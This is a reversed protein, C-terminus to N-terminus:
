MNTLGGDSILTQGNINSAQDSALFLLNAAIEEAAMLSASRGVGSSAGTIVLVKNEFRM